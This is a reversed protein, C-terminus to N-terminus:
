RDIIHIGEEAKRLAFNKKRFQEAIWHDMARINARSVQKQPQALEPLREDVWEDYTILNRFNSAATSKGAGISGVIYYVFKRVAQPYKLRFADQSMLILNALDRIGSSDLFLTYLNYSTFNARFIADLAAKELKSDKPLYHVIYHIHGPNAVANQRLLSQLTSDELSLGILLCTNRFLHNSLHIYKGNAASILQDQFANNSFVVEASAGDEFSSPLYGNPHYIVSHEKQFQANPKDTVEYGRTRTVEDDTRSQILLKELTDDFNYNVTLPSRKIIDRFATLYPHIEITKKRKKADVDRYLQKHIIKLWDSNIRQEDLFTISGSLARQKMYRERYHNFLIHAISALSRTAPEATEQKLRSLLAGADVDEDKGIRDVLEDWNPFGLDKSAGSGFILGLRAREHQARMHIVARPAVLMPHRKDAAKKRPAKSKAM